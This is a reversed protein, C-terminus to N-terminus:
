CIVTSTGGNNSVQKQEKEGGGQQRQVWALMIANFLCLGRRTDSRKMYKTTSSPINRIIYARRDVTSLAEWEPGM